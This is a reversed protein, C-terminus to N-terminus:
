PGDGSWFGVTDLVIKGGAMGDFQLSISKLSQLNFSPNKDVFLSLPLYFSQLVTEGPAHKELISAKTIQVNIRKQLLMIEDISVRSTQHDNELVVSLNIGNEQLSESQNEEEKMQDDCDGLSFVLYDQTIIKLGEVPLQITYTSIRNRKDIADWGLTVVSTSLSQNWKGRLYGEYWETLDSSLISTGPYTATSVNLDEEFTALPIFNSDEFQTLYVTEPLWKAGARWDRFLALYGYQGDLASELFASIFVEAIKEQQEAPMIAKDNLIVRFMGSGSDARGWTSNFQGHNAGHIYVAGKFHYDEGSFAVRNYQGIGDYSTLDGDMSGQLVLYNVDEMPTEWGGPNCQDDVPAIAVVAQIPFNYNFEITANDPYFPLRNFHAAEAVAEGGRSHGILVLKQWDVKHYFEQQPDNNWTKWLQLHELLMWARADNENKNEEGGLFSAWGGNLFNEDVSVVIMGRSALLEGLYDYGPDSFDEQLHNGHVILVLPFPGNGQPYWVRGNLPLSRLDFGWYKKLYWGSLGKWGQVFPTGDVSSTVFGVQDGFEKRHLDSGNGYSTTLVEYAGVQSPDPLDLQKIDMINDLAANKVEPGQVGDLSIWWIGGALLVLGIMTGTILVVKRILTLQQWGHRVFTWIAAGMLSFLVFLYTVGPPVIKDNGAFFAFTTGILVVSAFVSWRYLRPWQNIWDLLLMILSSGLYAALIGALMTILYVLTVSAPAKSLWNNVMWFLIAGILLGVAAGKWAEHGPFVSRWLNKMKFLFLRLIGVTKKM